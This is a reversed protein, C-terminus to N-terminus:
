TSGRHDTESLLALAVLAIFVGMSGARSRWTTQTVLWGIMRALAAVVVAAIALHQGRRTPGLACGFLVASTFAAVIVFTIHNPWAPGKGSASAYAMLAFGISALLHSVRRLM